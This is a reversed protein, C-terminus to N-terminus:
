VVNHASFPLISVLTWILRHVNSEGAEGAMGEKVRGGEMTTRGSSRLSMREM